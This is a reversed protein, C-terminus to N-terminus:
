SLARPMDLHRLLLSLLCLVLPHYHLALIVQEHPLYEKFISLFTPTSLTLVFWGDAYDAPLFRRLREYSAGNLPNKVNNCHGTYSRYKGIVCEEIQNVPCIEKMKTGDTPFFQVNNKANKPSNDTIKQAAVNSSIASFSLYKAYQDAYTYQLWALESQKFTDDFTNSMVRETDNFLTETLHVAESAASVVVELKMTKKFENQLKESPPDVAGFGDDDFEFGRKSEKSDNEHRLDFSFVM